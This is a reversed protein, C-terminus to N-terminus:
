PTEEIIRATKVYDLDPFSSKLYSNGAGEIQPQDPSEGYGSFIAEVNHMGEIVEGFPAFGQGDLFDNNAYNVFVQSTRTNPGATAFTVYGKKNSQQVEDDRINRGWKRHKEPSGNIGFQVMFGPLVRFFRCEDYFGDKVLEYFRQAGIPAWDRHVLIVFDGASSEFKVKYTGTGSETGAGTEAPGKADDTAAPEVAGKGPPTAATDSRMKDMEALSDMVSPPGDQKDSTCGSFLFLVPLLLSPSFVRHRIFCNRREVIRCPM